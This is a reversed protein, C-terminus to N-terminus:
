KDRIVVKGRYLMLDKKLNYSEITLNKVKNALQMTERECVEFKEMLLNEMVEYDVASFESEINNKKPLEDFGGQLNDRQHKLLKITSEICNHLILSGGSGKLARFQATIRDALKKVHVRLQDDTMGVLGSINLHERIKRNILEVLIEKNNDRQLVELSSITTRNNTGADMSDRDAFPQKEM